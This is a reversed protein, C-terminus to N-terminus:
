RGTNNADLHTMDAEIKYNGFLGLYEPLLVGTGNSNDGRGNIELAGEKVSVEDDTASNLKQWNEPINTGENFNEEYLVYDDDEAGKVVLLIPM